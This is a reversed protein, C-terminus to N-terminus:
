NDDGFFDDKSKKKARKPEPKPRFSRLQLSIVRDLDKSITHAASPKFTHHEQGTADIFVSEEMLSANENTIFDDQQDRRSLNKCLKIFEPLTANTLTGCKEFEPALIKWYRKALDDFNVWTPVKM